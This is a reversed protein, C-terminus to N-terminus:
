RFPNYFAPQKKKYKYTLAFIKSEFGIMAPFIENRDESIRDYRALLEEIGRAVFSKLKGLQMERINSLMNLDNYWEIEM